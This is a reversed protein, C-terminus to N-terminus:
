SWPATLVTLRKIAPCPVPALWPRQGPALARGRGGVVRPPDQVGQVQGGRRWQVRCASAGSGAHFWPDTSVPPEPAAKGERKGPPQKKTPSEWGVTDVEGAKVPPARLVTPIASLRRSSTISWEIGLSFSGAGHGEASGERAPPRGVEEGPGETPGSVRAGQRLVPTGWLVLAPPVGGWWWGGALHRPTLAPFCKWAVEM